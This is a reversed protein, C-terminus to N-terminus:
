LSSLCLLILFFKQHLFYHVHAGPKKWLVPSNAFAVCLELAPLPSNPVSYIETGSGSPVTLATGGWPPAQYPVTDERAGPQEQILQHSLLVELGLGPLGPLGWPERSCQLVWSPHPCPLPVCDSCSLATLGSSFSELSIPLAWMPLDRFCTICTWWIWICICIRLICWGSKGGHHCLVPCPLQTKVAAVPEQVALPPKGQSCTSRSPRHWPAKVLSPM